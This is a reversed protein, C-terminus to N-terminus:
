VKKIRVGFALLILGLAFIGLTNPEPISYGHFDASGTSYRVATGSEDFSDQTVGNVVWGNSWSDFDGSFVIDTMSGNSLPWMNTDFNWMAVGGVVDLAGAGNLLGTLSSSGIFTTEDGAFIHGRLALWLLNDGDDDSGGTNQLTLKEQDTVTLIDPSTDVWFEMWGGKFNTDGAAAADASITYGGFQYSLECGPCIDAYGNISTLRGYGSLELTLINIQQYIIASGGRLDAGDDPDWVVGGVNILGASASFSALVMVAIALARKIM